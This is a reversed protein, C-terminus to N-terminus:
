RISGPNKERRIEEVACVLDERELFLGELFSGRLDVLSVGHKAAHRRMALFAARQCIAALEAGSLGETAAALPEIALKDSGPLKRLHIRLIAARAAEPPLGIEIKRDFRGPRVLAPDLDGFRNTAALVAIGTNQRLGDMERCLEGFTRRMVGEVGMEDRNTCLGDIEDFFLVVLWGGSAIRRADEFLRAVNKESEGHWMSNIDSASVSLFLADLQTALIKAITTKGTGPPGVLLIGKPPALGMRRYPEPNRLPYEILERMTREVEPMGGLDEWSAGSVRVAACPGAGEEDSPPEAAELLERVEAAAEWACEVSLSQGLFRFRFLAAGKRAELQLDTPYLGLIPDM